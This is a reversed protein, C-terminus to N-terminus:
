NTKKRKQVRAESLRRLAEEAETTQGDSIAEATRRALDELHEAELVEDALARLRSPAIEALDKYVLGHHKHILESVWRRMQRTSVDAAKAAQDLNLNGRIFDVAFKKRVEWKVQSTARSLTDKAIPRSANWSTMLANVTRVTVQLTAAAGTRSLKGERIQDLVGLVMPLRLGHRAMRIKLAREEIELAKAM